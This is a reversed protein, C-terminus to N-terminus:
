TTEAHQVRGLLERGIETPLINCSETETEYAIVLEGADLAARVVAAKGIAYHLLTRGDRDRDLPSFGLEIFTGLCSDAFDGHYKSHASVGECLGCHSSTEAGADRTRRVIDIRQERIALDLPTDSYGNPANVPAGRRLLLEVADM